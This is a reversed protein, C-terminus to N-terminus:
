KGSVLIDTEVLARQRQRFRALLKEDPSLNEKDTGTFLHQDMQENLGIVANSYFTKHTARLWDDETHWEGLWSRSDGSPIDLNEDEFIKLPFGDSWEQIQFSFKGDADQRLDTIPLYRYSQTGDEDRRTLLLAQKGNTGSLWVPSKNPKLDDACNRRFRISRFASPSLILRINASIKRFM